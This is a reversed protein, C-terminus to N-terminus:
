TKALSSVLCTFEILVLFHDILALLRKSTRFFYRIARNYLNLYLFWRPSTALIM